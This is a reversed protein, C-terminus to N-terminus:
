SREMANIEEKLWFIRLSPNKTNIFIERNMPCKFLRLAKAKEAISLDEMPELVAVCNAISFKDSEKLEEVLTASQKKRFDIYDELALAVQSQKRKKMPGGGKQGSNESTAPKAKDRRSAGQGQLDSSSM